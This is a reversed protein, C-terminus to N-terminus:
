RLVTATFMSYSLSGYVETFDYELSSDAGPYNYSLIGVDWGLGNDFEGAIGGYVDLEMTADSVTQVEFDVNSAWTGIYLGSGHEYDFGGQIAPDEATQSIGRFTYDSTM